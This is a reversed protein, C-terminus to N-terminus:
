KAPNQPNQPESHGQPGLHAIESDATGTGGLRGTM